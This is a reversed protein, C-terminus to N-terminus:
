DAGEMTIDLTEGGIKLGLLLDLTENNGTVILLKYKNTDSTLEVEEIKSIRVTVSLSGSLPINIFWSEKATGEKIQGILYFESRNRIAFSDIAMFLGERHKTEM